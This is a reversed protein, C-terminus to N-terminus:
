NGCYVSLDQWVCGVEDWYETVGLEAMLELFEPRERLASFEPLFLLDMEFSLGPQLLSRAVKLAGDTDGLMMRLTVEIQPNIQDNASAETAVVLAATRQTPDVLAAFFPDIWNETGGRIRVGQHVLKRAEEFEGIRALHLGNALLLTAGDAGFQRSYKFYEDAKDNQGTWTYVIAVRGNSIASSPDIALGALAQQLAADLRGVSGLMLSYWNYTNSEVIPASIARVFAQEAAAWKKQKHYVFGFVAGAADEIAADKSIGQQVIELAKDHSERLDSGRYDPLLVYIEALALYAPGFNPDLRISTEFQTIAKELNGAAGRHDLAFLGRIYHTYADANAPRSSALPKKASEGSLQHRVMGALEEQLEFLDEIAGEVMGSSVNVGDKARAVQFSFRLEDGDKRLAGLLVSDVQLQQAIVEIEMGKYDGNGSKVSYEPITQLTHVLEEKFGTVIFEMNSDGTLNEFPLVGISAVLTPPRVFAWWSAAGIGFLALVAALAWLRTPRHAQVTLLPKESEISDLLVVAQLLCYGRRVLTGVFRYPKERDNFHGRLQFVCRTIPDDATARGGWVEDVLEDKTVVDGDRMALSVLVAMVKPEPREIQEGHRLEGRAPYIEWDGIRFGKDLEEKTLM